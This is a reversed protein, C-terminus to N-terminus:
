IDKMHFYASSLAASVGSIAVLGAVTEWNTTSWTGKIIGPIDDLISAPSIVGLGVVPFLIIMSFWLVLLAVIATVSNPLVVSFSVGLATLTVLMLAVLSIASVLGVASYDSAEFRLALGVLVATVLCFCVLTYAVRAAFKALIYDLRTVSKSLISDALEGAESSVSSAALGIIVLSWIDVFDGLGSSVVSSTTGSSASLTRLIQIFAAALLWAYTIRSKFLGRLDAQAITWFPAPAGAASHQQSSGARSKM